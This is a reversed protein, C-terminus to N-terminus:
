RSSLGLMCVGDNIAARYYDRAEHALGTGLFAVLFVLVLIRPLNCRPKVKSFIKEIEAELQQQM